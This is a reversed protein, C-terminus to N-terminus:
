SLYEYIKEAAQEIFHLLDDYLIYRIPNKHQSEGGDFWHLTRDNWAGVENDNVLGDIGVATSNVLYNWIEPRHEYKSHLEFDLRDTDNYYALSKDQIPAKDEDYRMGFMSYVTENWFIDTLVHVGYGFCFDGNRKGYNRLILERANAKWIDRDASHLHSIRKNEGKYNERMHVADPAIAGLYYSSIDKFKINNLLNRAVGLHVIPLPM